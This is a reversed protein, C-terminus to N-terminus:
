GGPAPRLVERVRVEEFLIKGKREVRLTVQANQLKRFRADLEPTVEVIQFVKGSADTVAWWSTEAPGKRSLIGTLETAAPDRGDVPPPDAPVPAAQACGLLTAALFAIAPRKTAGTV